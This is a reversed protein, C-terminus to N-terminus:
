TDCPWLLLAPIFDTFVQRKKNLLSALNAPPLIESQHSWLNSSCGVQVKELICEFITTLDEFVLTADHLLTICRLKAIRVPGDTCSVEFLCSLAALDVWGKLGLMQLPSGHTFHDPPTSFRILILHNSVAPIPSVQLYLIPIQCLHWSATLTSTPFCSWNGVIALYSKPCWEWGKLLPQKCM